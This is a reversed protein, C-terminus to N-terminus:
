DSWLSDNRDEGLLFVAHGRGAARGRQRGQRRRETELRAVFDNDTGDAVVSRHLSQDALVVNGDEGVGRRSRDVKAGLCDLRTDGITGSANEANVLRAHNAIHVRYHLQGLLM